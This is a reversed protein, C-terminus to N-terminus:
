PLDSYHPIIQVVVQLIGWLIFLVVLAYLLRPLWEGLQEVDAAYQERWQRGLRRATEELAGAHEGVALAACFDAPWLRGPTLAQALPTGTLVQQAMRSLDGRYEGNPATRACTALAESLVVGAGLLDALLGASEGLNRARELGAVVPLNLLLGDLRSVPAPVAQGEQVPSAIRARAAAGALHWVAGAVALPAAVSLVYIWMSGGLVLGPLPIIFAAMLLVIGPLALRARIKARTAHWLERKGIVSGLAADLRGSKFGAALVARESEPLVAALVALVEAADSGRAARQAGDAFAAQATHSRCVTGALRLAESPAIGAEYQVLWARLAETVFPDLPDIGM